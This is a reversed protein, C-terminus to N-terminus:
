CADLALQHNGSIGEAVSTVTAEGIGELVVQGLVTGDVSDFFVAQGADNYRVAIGGHEEMDLYLTKGEGPIAYNGVAESSAPVFLPFVVYLLYFFILVIAIIVSIGGFAVGHRAMRDKLMRWRHRSDAAADLRRAPTTTSESM